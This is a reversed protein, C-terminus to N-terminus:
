AELNKRKIVDFVEKCQANAVPLLSIFNFRRKTSLM